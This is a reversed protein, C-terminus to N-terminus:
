LSRIKAKYKDPINRRNIWHSITGNPLGLLIAVKSRGISKIKEIIPQNTEQKIKKTEKLQELQIDWCVHNGPWCSRNCRICYIETQGRRIGYKKESELNQERISILCRQNWDSSEYKPVFANKMKVAANWREELDQDM